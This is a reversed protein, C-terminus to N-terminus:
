GRGQFRFTYVAAAPTKSPKITGGFSIYKKNDIRSGTRMPLPFTEEVQYGNAGWKKMLMIVFSGNSTRSYRSIDNWFLKGSVKLEGPEEGKSFTYEITHKSSENTCTYPLTLSLDQGTQPQGWPLECVGPNNADVGLGIYRSTCGTFLLTVLLALLVNKM